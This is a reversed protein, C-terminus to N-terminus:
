EIVKKDVLKGEYPGQKVEIIKTHSLIELGHGGAVLFITDGTTLNESRFWVGSEDYLNVRVNGEDIHLVEQIKTLTIERDLHVHAKISTGAKYVNVGLQLPFHEQPVFHIGGDETFNKRFIYAIAKGDNSTIEEM